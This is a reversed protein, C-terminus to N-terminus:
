CETHCLSLFVQISDLPGALRQQLFQLLGDTSAHATQTSSASGSSVTETRASDAMKLETWTVTETYSPPPSSSRWWTFTTLTFPQGATTVCAFRLAIACSDLSGLPFAHGRHPPMRTLYERVSDLSNLEHSCSASWHNETPPFSLCAAGTM